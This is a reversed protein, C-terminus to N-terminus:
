AKLAADVRMAAELLRAEHGSDATLQLGLPLGSEVPMPVSIAPVGLATWPANMRPDGTSGLGRPAPGPASPTLIVPVKAFVETMEGKTRHVTELAAKYEKESIRLGERVMEALAGLRSGHEQWRQKHIRAGEYNMILRAVPVLESFVSPLKVKEIPFGAVRLRAVSKRFADAMEPEVEPVPEPVGLRATERQGLPFGMKEWLLRMDEVTQTFLGATDLSPAVPLVGEMPLLGHTPKFGVVGCFSAPRLVSGLTQTGIAFPVM